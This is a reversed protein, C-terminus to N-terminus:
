DLRENVYIWFHYLKVDAAKPRTHRSFLKGISKFYIKELQESKGWTADLVWQNVKSFWYESDNEKIYAIMGNESLPNNRNDVGHFGDRFRQIGGGKGFVYEHEARPKKKTGKPTPLLKAEMTFILNSGLYIGIDVTFSGKQPNEKSFYYYSKCRNTMYACFSLSYQVEHKKMELIDVFEQSKPFDPLTKEIYELLNLIARNSSGEEIETFENRITNLNM